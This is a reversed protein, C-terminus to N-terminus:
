IPYEELLWRRAEDVDEAIQAKLADFSDFREEERIRGRFEVLLREGYIDQKFDM